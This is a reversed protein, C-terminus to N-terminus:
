RIAARDRYRRLLTHNYADGGDVNQSVLVPADQGTASLQEVVRITIAHIAACALITSVAGTPIGGAVVTTDGHPAHTDLVVDAVDCLRQGSHHRPSVARSHALSTIAVVRLGRDRAGLALEVPVPNIGSHSVVLMVEGARLDAVSLAVEAYGHLREARAVRDPFAPLLAPDYVLDIAALGGARVTSEIAALMSHGSGFVHLMDGDGVSAAILEAARDIEGAQTHEIETLLDRVAAFYGPLPTSVTM